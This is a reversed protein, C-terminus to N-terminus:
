TTANKLMEERNPTNIIYNLEKHFSTFQEEWKEMFKNASYDSIIADDENDTIALGWGKIHNPNRERKKTQDIIVIVFKYRDKIVSCIKPYDHTNNIVKDKNEDLITINYGLGLAYLILNHHGQKYTIAQAVESPKM